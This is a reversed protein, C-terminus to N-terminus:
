IVQPRGTEGFRELKGALGEHSGARGSRGQLSRPPAVPMPQKVRRRVFSVVPSRNRYPQVLQDAETQINNSNSSNSSNNNLSSSNLSLPRPQVSYAVQSSPNPRPPQRALCVVVVQRSLKRRLPFPRRPAASFVEPKSPSPLPGGLCLAQQHLNPLRRAM